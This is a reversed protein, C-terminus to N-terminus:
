IYRTMKRPPTVELLVSEDADAFAVSSLLSLLMIATLMGCLLKRLHKNM